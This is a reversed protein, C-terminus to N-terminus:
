SSDDHVKETVQNEFVSHHNFDLFLSALIFTTRLRPLYSDRRHLSPNTLWLLVRHARPPLTAQPGPHRTPYPDPLWYVGSSYSPFLTVFSTCVCCLFKAEAICELYICHFRQYLVSRFLVSRRVFSLNFYELNTYVISFLRQVFSM